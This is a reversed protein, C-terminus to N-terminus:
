SIHDPARLNSKIGDNPFQRGLLSVFGSAVFKGANMTEM